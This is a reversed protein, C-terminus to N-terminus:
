SCPIQRGAQQQIENQKVIKMRRYFFDSWCGMNDPLYSAEDPFHDNYCHAHIKQNSATFQSTLCFISILHQQCLAHQQNCIKKTRQIRQKDSLLIVSISTSSNEHYLIFGNCFSNHSVNKSWRTSQQLGVIRSNQTHLKHRRASVRGTYQRQTIDGASGLYSAAISTIEKTVAVAVTFTFRTLPRHCWSWWRTM